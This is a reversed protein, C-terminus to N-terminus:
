LVYAVFRFSELKHLLPELIDINDHSFPDFISLVGQFVCFVFGFCGVFLFADALVVEIVFGVEEFM